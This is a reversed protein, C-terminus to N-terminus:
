LFASAGGWIIREGNNEIRQTDHKPIKLGKKSPDYKKGKLLFFLSATRTKRGPPHDPPPTHSLKKWNKEIM